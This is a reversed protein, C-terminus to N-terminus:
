LSVRVLWPAPFVIMAGREGLRAWTRAVVVHRNPSPSPCPSGAADAAESRQTVSDRGPTQTSYPFNRHICTDHSETEM